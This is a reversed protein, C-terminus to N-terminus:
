PILSLAETDVRVREGTASGTGSGVTAGEPNRVVYVFPASYTDGSADLTIKATVEFTGAYKGDHSYLDNYATYAFSKVGTQLWSGLATTEKSPAQSNDFETSLGDSTFNTFSLFTPAGNPSVSTRWLGVIPSSQASAAVTLSLALVLISLLKKM